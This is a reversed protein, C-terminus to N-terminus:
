QAGSNSTQPVPAPQQDANGGAGPNTQTAPGQAGSSTPPGPSRVVILVGGLVSLLVVTCLLILLWRPM